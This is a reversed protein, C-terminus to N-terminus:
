FLFPSNGTRNNYNQAEQRTANFVERSSITVNKNAIIQLLRNQENIANTQALIAEYTRNDNIGTAYGGSTIGSYSTSPTVPNYRFKSADAMGDLMVNAIKNIAGLNHELPIIAEAGAEGFIVSTPKDSYGGKAMTPVASINVGPIKNITTIASNIGKAIGNWATKIPNTFFDSFTASLKATLNDKLYKWKSYISTIKATVSDKITAVLGINKINKIANIKSKISDMKKTAKDSITAKLKVSKDKVIKGLKSAM